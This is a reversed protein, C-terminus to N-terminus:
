TLKSLFRGFKAVAQPHENLVYDYLAVPIGFSYTPYAHISGIVADVTLNNNMALTMENILEGANAGAIHCGIFRRKGDILFKMMGVTDQDTIARELATYPFRVVSFEKGAKNAEAETLGAHAIEPDTFTVWPVIGPSFKQKIPLFINRVAQAAQYGAFHTFQMGGVVDGTAFIGEQATQLRDNVQIGKPTYKVGAAELGLGEVNPTRGVAVLIEDVRLEGAHDGSVTLVKDGGDIRVSELATNYWVALGEDTFAAELMDVLEGEDRPLLRDARQLVTVESGLRRLAQALECGIPGGGVVGVRKPLNQLDFLDENTIYGAEELGPVEPKAPRSGTCILSYKTSISTNGAQGTQVTHPDLFHGGGLFVDIGSERLNQESDIEGVRSIAAQVRGNVAGLSPALPGPLLGFRDATALEHAVRASKILSKSPVCGYYLCDGGLRTKDILAIRKEAFFRAVKAATLGASGGGIIALDYDYTAM